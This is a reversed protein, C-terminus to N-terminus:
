SEDEDDKVPIPASAEDGPEDDEEDFFGPEPEYDPHMEIPQEKEESV